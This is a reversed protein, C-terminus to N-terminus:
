TMAINEAMQRVKDADEFQTGYRDNFTQLINSLRDIEPESSSGRM